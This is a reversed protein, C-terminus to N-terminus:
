KKEKARAAAEVITWLLHDLAIRNNFPAVKVNLDTMGLLNRNSIELEQFILNGDKLYAEMIGKDFRRDGLYLKASVGGVKQLFEKSIVRKEGGASDAWFDAKGMLHQTGLGSGKFSAVGNVKGSIFGKIPPITECLTALSLGKVLLGGRYNLEESLDIAVSGQLKGGFITADFQMVNLFSQKQDVQLRINELVPFGVHLAGITIVRSDDVPTQESYYKLLPVFESKEFPPFSPPQGENRSKGYRFPLTGRIPGISYEGNEGSLGCDNLMVNGIIDLGHVGYDVSLASSLSGQLGAYLLSDPFIDWFIERLEAVNAEPLIMKLQIRRGKGMFGTVTGSAQTSLNGFTTEVRLALDKEKCDIRALMSADKIITRKSNRDLVSVQSVDMLINGNFSDQSNLTGECTFRKIKGEVTYPAKYVRAIAESISALDSGELVANVQIPFPGQSMRGQASLRLNGGSFEAEPIDVSFVQEDFRGAGSIHRFAIGQLMATGVSFHLDGSASKGHPTITWSADCKKLDVQGSPHAVNLDQITIEYQGKRQAGNIRFQAALARINEAELELDHLTLDEKQYDIDSCGKLGQIRQDAYRLDKLELATKGSFSDARMAGDIKMSGNGLSLSRGNEFKIELPSLILSSAIVMQQSTGRLTGSLKAQTPKTLTYDMAKMIEASIDGKISLEEGSSFDLDAQIRNMIAQNSRVSGERLQFTGLAEPAGTRLNGKIRLNQSTVIGGGELSETLNFKSLDLRDIKIEAQYSPNKRLDAVTGKFSTSLGDGRLTGTHLTLSDHSPYFTANAQVRINRGALKNFFSEGAKGITASVEAKISVEKGSSFDLDGQIKQIITKPSKIEGEKLRLTGTVEPLGAELNGKVQLNKSSLIGALELNTVLDLESLDLREIQMDVQYSPNKRLNALIGKFTTSIGDVQFTATHVRLSDYGPNLTADAQLVMNTSGRAFQFIKAGKVQHISSKIRFGTETDGEVQLSASWRTGEADIKYAKLFGKLPPLVFDESSIDVNVKKPAGNLAVWGTVQIKNGLYVFSSKVETRADPESSINQMSVHIQDSSYRKDRDSAFRGSEIRFEDVQFSKRTASEQFLLRRLPDSINWQGRENHVVEIDPSYAVISKISLRGKLIQFFRTNLHFRKVRLLEGPPFGEPNKIVIDHLNLVAPLHFSIDGISVKQGIVATAKESIKVLFTKKLDRYYLFGAVILFVFLVTLIWYAIKRVKM